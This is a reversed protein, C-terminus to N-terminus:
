PKVLVVSKTEVPFTIPFSKVQFHALLHHHFREKEGWDSHAGEYLFFTLSHRSLYEFFLMIERKQGKDHSMDVSVLCLPTYSFGPSNM